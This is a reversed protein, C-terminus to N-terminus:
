YYNFNEIRCYFFHIIKGSSRTARWDMTFCVAFNPIERCVIRGLSM